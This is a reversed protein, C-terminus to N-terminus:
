RSQIGREGKLVNERLRVADRELRVELGDPVRGQAGAGPCAADAPATWRAVPDAQVSAGGVVHTPRDRRSEVLGACAVLNM